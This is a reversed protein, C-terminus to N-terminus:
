DLKIDIDKKYDSILGSLKKEAEDKKLNGVNVIFKFFLERNPNDYHLSMDIKLATMIWNAIFHSDCSCLKHEESREGTDPDIDRYWIEVLSDDM